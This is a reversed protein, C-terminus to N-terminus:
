RLASGKDHEEENPSVRLPGLRMINMILSESLLIGNKLEEAAAWSMGCRMM